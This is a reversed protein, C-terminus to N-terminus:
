SAAATESQEARILYRKASAYGLAKALKNATAGTQRVGRLFRIVTMDSVKAKNALDLKSWGKLAMDEALLQADFKVLPSRTQMAFVFIGCRTEVTLLLFCGNDVICVPESNADAGTARGTKRGARPFYKLPRLVRRPQFCFNAASSASRCPRLRSM